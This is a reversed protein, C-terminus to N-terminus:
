DAGPVPMGRKRGSKEAESKRAGTQKGAVAVAKELQVIRQEAEKKQASLSDLNTRMDSLQQEAVAAAREAAVARGREVELANNLHEVRGEAQQGWREAQEAQLRATLAESRASEGAEILLKKEAELEAIRTLQHALGEARQESVPAAKEAAVARNREAELSAILDRRDASLEAIRESHAMIKEDALAGAKEAEAQKQRLEMRAEELEESLLRIRSEASVLSELAEAADARAQAVEVAMQERVKRAVAGIEQAMAFKLEDSIEVGGELGSYGEARVEKILALITGLSGGTISMVARGTVRQGEAELKKVALRVSEKTAVQQM